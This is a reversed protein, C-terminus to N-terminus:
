EPLWGGSIKEILEVIHGRYSSTTLNIVLVHDITLYEHAAVTCAYWFGEDIDNHWTTMPSDDSQNLTGSQDNEKEIRRLVIQMDFADDIHTGAQGAGCVYLVDNDLCAKALEDLQDIQALDAIAFLVWNRGCMGGVETHGPEWDTYSISRDGIKGLLEPKM